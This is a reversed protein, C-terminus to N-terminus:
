ADPWAPAAFVINELPVAYTPKQESTPEICVQAHTESLGVLVGICHGGQRTKVEVMRGVMQALDASKMLAAGQPTPYSPLVLWDM